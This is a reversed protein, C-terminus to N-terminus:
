LHEEIRPIYKEVAHKAKLPDNGLGLRMVLLAKRGGHVILYQSAKSRIVVSDLVDRTESTVTEASGILVAFMSGFTDVHVGKPFSGALYTGALSVLMAEHVGENQEVEKLISELAAADVMHRFGESPGSPPRAPNFREATFRMPRADSRGSSSTCPSRRM